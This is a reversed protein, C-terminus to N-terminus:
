IRVWSWSKAGMILYVTCNSCTFVKQISFSLGLWVKGSSDCLTPSNFQILVDSGNQLTERAALNVFGGETVVGFGYIIEHHNLALAFKHNFSIFFNDDDKCICVYKWEAVGGLLWTWIDEVACIFTILFKTKNWLPFSVQLACRCSSMIVFIVSKKNRSPLSDQYHFKLKQWQALVSLKLVQTYHRHLCDTRSSILWATWGCSSNCVYNFVFMYFM